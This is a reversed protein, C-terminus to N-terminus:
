LTDDLLPFHDDSFTLGNVAALRKAYKVAESRAFFTQNSAPRYGYNDRIGALKVTLTTTDNEMDRGRGKKDYVVCYETIDM